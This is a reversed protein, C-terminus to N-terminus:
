KTIDQTFKIKGSDITLIEGDPNTMQEDFYYRGVQDAQEESIPYAVEGGASDIVQGVLQFLNNTADVPAKSPDVTLLFTCGSIDVASGDDGYTIYSMLKATDGRKRTIDTM